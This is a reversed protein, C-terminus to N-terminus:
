GSTRDTQPLASGAIITGKPGGFPCHLTFFSVGGTMACGHCGGRPPPRGGGAPSTARRLRAPLPKGPSQYFSYSDCNQPPLLSEQRTLRAPALIVRASGLFLEKPRETLFPRHSNAPRGTKGLVATALFFNEAERLFAAALQRAQGNHGARGNDLFLERSRELFAAALQRAQGSQGTCDNGRLLEKSREKLFPRYLNVPRGTKGLAITAM